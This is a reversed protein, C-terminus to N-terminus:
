IGQGAAWTFRPAGDRGMERGDATKGGVLHVGWRPPPMTRRRFTRAPNKTTAPTHSAEGRAGRADLFLAAAAARMVLADAAAARLGM